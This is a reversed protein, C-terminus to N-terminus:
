KGLPEQLWHVTSYLAILILNLLMKAAKIKIITSKPKHKFSEKSNSSYRLLLKQEKGLGEQRWGVLNQFNIKLMNKPTREWVTSGSDVKLSKRLKETEFNEKCKRLVRRQTLFFLKLVIKAGERITGSTVRCLKTFQQKAYKSTHKALSPM